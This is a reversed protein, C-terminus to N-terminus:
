DKPFLRQITRRLLMETEFDGSIPQIEVGQLLSAHERHAEELFEVGHMGIGLYGDIFLALPKDSSNRLVLLAHEATTCHVIRCSPESLVAYKRVFDSPTKKDDVFLIWRESM